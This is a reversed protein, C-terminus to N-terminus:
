YYSANIAQSALMELRRRRDMGVGGPPLAAWSPDFFVAGMTANEGSYRVIEFRITGTIRYVNFVGNYMETTSFTRTTHLLNGAGDFARIFEVRTWDVEYIYISVIHANGDTCHLNLTVYFEPYNYVASALRYTANQSSLPYQQKNPDDLPTTTSWTYFTDNVGFSQTVYGPWGTWDGYMWGGESGYHGKWNGRTVLDEGLYVLSDVPAPPASMHHPTQSQMWLDYRTETEQVEFIERESLYRRYLRQEGIWGDFAYTVGDQRNGIRIVSSAVAQLSVGSWSNRGDPNVYIDLTGDAALCFAALYVTDPNLNINHTITIGSGDMVLRKNGSADSYVYFCYEGPKAFITYYTSIPMGASFAFWGLWSMPEGPAFQVSADDGPGHIIDYGYHGTARSFFAGREGQLSGWAVDSYVGDSTYIPIARGSVAEEIGAGAGDWFPWCALLGQAQGSAPNILTGPQATPKGNRM